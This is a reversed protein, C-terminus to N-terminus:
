PLADGVEFGLESAERAQEFLALKLLEERHWV